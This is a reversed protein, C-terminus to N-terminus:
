SYESEGRYCVASVITHKCIQLKNHKRTNRTLHSQEIPENGGILHITRRTENGKMKIRCEEGQSGKKEEWEM